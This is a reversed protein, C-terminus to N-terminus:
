GKAQDNSSSVQRKKKNEIIIQKLSKIKLKLDFEIPGVIKNKKKLFRIKEYVALAKKTDKKVEEYIYALRMRLRLDHPYFSTARILYKLSEDYKELNFYSEGLGILAFRSFERHELSIKFHKIARKYQHGRVYIQGLFTHAAVLNPDIKIAKSFQSVAGRTDKLKWLLRGKQFRFLALNPAKKLASEVMWLSRDYNKKNESYLSLYYVGWPSYPFEKAMHYSLEEVRRWKKSQVCDNAMILLKKWDKDIYLKKVKPCKLSADVQAGTKKFYAVSEVYEKSRENEHIAKSACGLLLHAFVLGLIGIKFRVKM